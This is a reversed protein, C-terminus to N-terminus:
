AHGFRRAVVDSMAHEQVRSGMSDAALHCPASPRSPKAGGGCALV